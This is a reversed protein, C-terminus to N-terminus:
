GTLQLSSPANERIGMDSPDKPAFSQANPGIGAVEGTFNESIPSASSFLSDDEPLDLFDDHAQEQATTFEVEIENEREGVVQELEQKIVTATDGTLQKIEQARKEPSLTLLYAVHDMVNDTEEDTLGNRAQVGERDNLINNLAIQLDEDTYQLDGWERMDQMRKEQIGELVEEVANQINDQDEEKEKQALISETRNDFEMDKNGKEGFAVDHIRSFFDMDVSLEMKNIPINLTDANVLFGLSMGSVPILNSLNISSFDVNDAQIHAALGTM